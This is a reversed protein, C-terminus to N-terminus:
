SADDPGGGVLALVDAAPIRTCAGVKFRRLDGRNMLNNVTQRTVKLYAAAETITLVGSLELEAHVAPALTAATPESM